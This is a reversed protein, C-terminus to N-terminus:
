KLIATQLFLQNLEKAATKWSFLALRKTATETLSKRLSPNNILKEISNAIDEEHLPDFYLAADAGIEPLCSNNAAAIPIQFQFAEVMPIGFGEYLSPFIYAMASRYLHGLEEDELYGTLIVHEQMDLERITDLIEIENNIFLKPSAKGVLVLKLDKYGKDRLLKVSRILRPLNKRKDLSGVHLLFPSGNIKSLIKQLKESPL